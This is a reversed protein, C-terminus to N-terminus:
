NLTIMNNQNSTEILLDAGDKKLAQAFPRLVEKLKKNFDM